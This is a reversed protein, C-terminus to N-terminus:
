VCDTKPTLEPLVLVEKKARKARPKKEPTPTPTPTPTEYTVQNQPSQSTEPVFLDEGSGSFIGIILGIQERISKVIFITSEYASLAAQKDAALKNQLFRM